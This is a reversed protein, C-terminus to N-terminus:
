TVAAVGPINGKRKFRERADTAAAQAEELRGAATLVEALDLAAGAQLDLYDTTAAIDIAQRAHSEASDHNGRQSDIRARISHFLIGSGADDEETTEESITAFRDADDIQDQELAARALMAALTSLYSREGLEELFDYGERLAREAAAPDGALLEIRGLMEARGEVAVVERGLDLDIQASEDVLRRAEDFNGEMARLGALAWLTAARPGRGLEWGHLVDEIRAVATPVPEPGFFLAISYSSYWRGSADGLARAHEMAAMASESAAASSCRLLAIDTLMGYAEALGRQDERQTFVEVAHRAGVEAQDAWGEPERMFDLELRTLDAFCRVAEDAGDPLADLTAAALDFDGQDLLARALGPLLAHRQPADAQLLDITRQLLNIAAPADLRALARRGADALHAAAREALVRETAGVPALEELLRFAQELHYGIIEDFEAGRDALAEEMWGALLEHLRARDSKPMSEYTVERIMIHRFAFAPRGGLEETWPRILQRGTLAALLAEMQPQLTEPALFTTADAYFVRGSVSATALATREDAILEELRSAIVASITPPVDIDTADGVTIWADGDRVLVGRDILMSLMEEVFLPNGEAASTLTQVIKPPLSSGGLLNQILAAAGDPGLAGLDIREASPVTAGWTPRKEFLVPRALCLVMIPAKALTALQEVLDLLGPEAWYIDEFVAVLPTTRAISEFLRRIAWYSEDLTGATGGGIGIVSAIREAAMQADPDKILRAIKDVAAEGRDVDSLGAAQRVMEGIAWFTIGEGYSLCRGTLVKTRGHVGTTFEDLLRTKGVGALGDVTVMVPAQTQEARELAAYLSALETDRGVMPSESRRGAVTRDVSLLRYAPVGESKGKLELAGLSEVEVAGRVMGYTVEGLLIEGHPAAQELRAAVNVADGTVGGTVFGDMSETTLVQGTNVGTRSQLRVGFRRELEDNMEHLAIRMEFAARAARLADDEHLVPVGFVGMVADGIMKEVSGGHRELVARMTGYYSEMMRRLSEPDIKEGITTSGALDSFVVTVLKRTERTAPKPPPPAAAAQDADLPSACAPCFRFEDPSETSCNPCVRM